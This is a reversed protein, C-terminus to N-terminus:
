DTVGEDAPPPLISAMWDEIKATNFRNEDIIHVARVIVREWTGPYRRELEELV